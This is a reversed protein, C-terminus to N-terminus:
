YLLGFKLYNMNRNCANKDLTRFMTAMWIVINLNKFKQHNPSETNLEGSWWFCQWNQSLV